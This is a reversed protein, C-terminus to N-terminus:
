FKQLTEYLKCIPLGMVTFYDGEIKEIFVGGRGQIGYSGAKDLPEKTSVYDDIEKSTMERFYVKTGEVFSEIYNNNANVISVGTYVTHMKGSLIGLMNKADQSDKPKGLIENDLVVITDAGIVLIDEKKYKLDQAVAKAKMTALSEVYLKPSQKCPRSEDIDSVIVDHEIGIQKLLEKRRPSASALIIKKM